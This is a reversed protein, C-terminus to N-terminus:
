ILLGRNKLINMFFAEWKDRNLNVKINCKQCLAILDPNCNPKDYHIHHVDLKRGNEKVSCLQCTRNDRNRIYEKLQKNFKPCYPEFSIGGQWNYHKDGSCNAFRKKITEPTQKCGRHADGNKRNTGETHKKGLMHNILTGDALMRKRTISMKLKAVETHHKGKIWSIQGKHSDSLKLIHEESMRKGKSWPVNGKKFFSKSANKKHEDSLNKGKNWATIGKHSESQKRRTEETVVHGKIFTM